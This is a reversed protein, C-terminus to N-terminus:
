PNIFILLIKDSEVVVAMFIVFIHFFGNRNHFEYLAEDLMDRFLMVLHDSVATKIGPVTVNVFLQVPGDGTFFM